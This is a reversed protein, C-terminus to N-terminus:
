HELELPEATNGKGTGHPAHWQDHMTVPARSGLVGQVSGGPGACGRRLRDACPAPHAHARASSNKTKKEHIAYCADSCLAFFLQYSAAILVLRSEASFCLFFSPPVRERSLCAAVGGCVVMVMVRGAAAHARATVTYLGLSRSALLFLSDLTLLSLCLSSWPAPLLFVFVRQAHAIRRKHKTCGAYVAHTMHAAPM